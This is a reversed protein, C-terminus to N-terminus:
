PTAGAAGDSRPGVYRILALMEPSPRREVRQYVRGDPTREFLGYDCLERRLIAHDGFLHEAQLLRNIQAESLRTRAPMRSWIVWLCPQQHSFKAPWRVMRGQPDFHQAWRRVRAFDVAVPPASTRRLVGAHVAARFHQFNRFGVARALINLLELHGPVRETRHLQRGLARALASIDEAYFPFTSKSM